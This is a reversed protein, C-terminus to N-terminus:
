GVAATPPRALEYRYAPREGDGADAHDPPTYRFERVREFGLKELVRQSASNAVLTVAVVRPTEPDAFAAAVLERAGETALGRNWAERRLRFGIELEGAREAAPAARLCFWGAFDRGPKEEAAWFGRDDRDEAAAEMRPLIEDRIRALDPPGAHVHRRVEPDADLAYLATADDPTMRRLVLRDTEHFVAGSM